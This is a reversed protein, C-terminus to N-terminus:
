TLMLHSISLHREPLCKALPLLVPLLMRLLNRYCRIICCVNIIHPQGIRSVGNADSVFPLETSHYTDSRQM